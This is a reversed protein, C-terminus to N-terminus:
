PKVRSECFSSFFENQSKHLFEHIKLQSATSKPPIKRHSEVPRLAFRFLQYVKEFSAFHTFLTFLRLGVSKATHLFSKPCLQLVIIPTLLSSDIKARKFFLPVLKKTKRFNESRPSLGGFIRCRGRSNKWEWTQLNHAAKGPGDDNNNATWTISTHPCISSMQLRLRGRHYTKSQQCL